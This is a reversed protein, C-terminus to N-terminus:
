LCFVAYSLHSHSSNLRTSSRDRTACMAAAGAPVSLTPLSGQPYHIRREVPFKARARPRIRIRRIPRLNPMNEAFPCTLTLRCLVGPEFDIQRQSCRVPQGLTSSLLRVLDPCVM